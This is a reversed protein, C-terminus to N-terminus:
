PIANCRKQQILPCVFFGLDRHSTTFFQNAPIQLLIPPFEQLHQMDARRSRVLYLMKLPWLNRLYSRFVDVLLTKAWDTQCLRNRREAPALVGGAWLQFESGANPRNSLGKAVSLTNRQSPM